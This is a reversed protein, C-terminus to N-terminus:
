ITQMWPQLISYNPHHVRNLFYSIRVMGWGWPRHILYRHDNFSHISVPINSICVWALLALNLVPLTANNRGFLIGAIVWFLANMFLELTLLLLSRGFITLKPFSLHQLLPMRSPIPRTVDLYWGRLNKKLPALAIAPSTTVKIHGVCLVKASQLEASLYSVILM